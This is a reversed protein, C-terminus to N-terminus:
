VADVHDTAAISTTCIMCPVDISVSSATCYHQIIIDPIVVLLAFIFLPMLVITQLMVKCSGQSSSIVAPSSQVSTMNLILWWQEQAGRVSARRM